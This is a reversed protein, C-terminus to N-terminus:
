KFIKIVEFKAHMMEASIAQPYTCSKDIYRVPPNDFKSEERSCCATKSMLLFLVNNKLLEDSLLAAPVFNITKSQIFNNRPDPSNGSYFDYNGWRNFKYELKSVLSLQRNELKYVALGPLRPNDSKSTISLDLMMFKNGEGAITQHSKRGYKDHKWINKFQIKDVHLSLSDLKIKTNEEVEFFREQIIRDVLETEKQQALSIRQMLDKALLSVPSDPYKITISSLKEQAKHIEGVNKLDLAQKLRWEPTNEMNAIHLRLQSAEKELAQYEESDTPKTCNSFFLLMFFLSILKLPNNNM